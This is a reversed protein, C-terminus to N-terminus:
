KATPPTELLEIEFVINSNPPIVNGAGREGYGLKSPIYIIAKDGFNLLSMGELFGPILGEKKGYQFPFPQYGNQKARNEDFKGFEKNVSEYSSDFLSGDELYGAYHIYVTAGDAPKKGAGKQLIKYKLGSLTETTTARTETLYKAKASIVPGYKEKYEAQKAAIIEAEKKRKEAELAAEKQDEAAKGAMYDAFVKAADFKNAEAGKKSIIIKKIVDDQKIANVVDQGKVVYGFITHKGNLWPTDKHTIFFQSGNTKPGSNAMALIGAKDFVADTIEDKFAYGPGGTGNGQPDGGQIMFDAIVRHFKLGDYFPKGKLKADNVFTNTGQALSVFNAVTVPTKKYELQILIKGKDTEIEAFVGQEAPTAVVKKAPITKTSKAAPKKTTQATASLMGLCVLLLINCKIKM